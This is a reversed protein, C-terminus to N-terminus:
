GLPDELIAKLRLALATPLSPIWTADVLGVDILDRIPTRDKDRFATLKMRVLAWLDVVSLGDARVSEELTPNEAPERLRVLESAFVIHGSDRVSAEVSDLFVDMGAVHRYIFGEIELVQRVSELDSRQIMVDVDRTNRVAAEDVTTVWLAVANGGVVAYRIQRRDLAQCAKLLRARVKDVATFMRDLSM